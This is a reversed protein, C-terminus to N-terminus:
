DKYFMDKLDKNNVLKSSTYIFGVKSWNTLAQWFREYPHQQCYEAFSVLLKANKGNYRYFDRVNSRYTVFVTVLLIRAIGDFPEGAIVELISWISSFVIVTWLFVQSLILKM